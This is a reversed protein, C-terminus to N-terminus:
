AAGVNMSSVLIWVELTGATLDNLNDGEGPSTISFTAEIKKTVSASYLKPLSAISDGEIADPIWAGMGMFDPDYHGLQGAALFVTADDEDAIKVNLKEGEVTWAGGEVWDAPAKWAVAHVWAKIPLTLLTVVKTTAAVQVQTYDVDIKIWGPAAGIDAVEEGPQFPFLPLNM